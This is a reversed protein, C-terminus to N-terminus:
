APTSMTSLWIRSNSASIIRSFVTNITVWRSRPSERKWCIYRKGNLQIYPYISVKYFSNRALPLTFSYRSKSLRAVKKHNASSEYVVKYGSISNATKPLNMNFTYGTARVSSWSSKVSVTKYLTTCDVTRTSLVAGSDNLATVKATYATGPLLNKITATCGTTYGMQKFSNKRYHSLSVAYRSAGSVASWSITVKYSGKKYSAATQQVGNNSFNLYYNSAGAAEVNDSAFESVTTDSIQAPQLTAKADAAFATSAMGLTLAASLGLSVLLKQFRKMKM